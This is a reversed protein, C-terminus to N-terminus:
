SGSFHAGYNLLISRRESGHLVELQLTDNRAAVLQKYLDEISRIETDEARIILDGEQLGASAAPGLLEVSQVLLGVIDPLGSARRIKGPASPFPTAM